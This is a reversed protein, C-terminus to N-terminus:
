AWCLSAHQKQNSMVGRQDKAQMQVKNWLGTASAERRLFQLSHQHQRQGTHQRLPQQQAVVGQGM